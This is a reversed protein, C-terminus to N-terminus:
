KVRAANVSANRLNGVAYVLNGAKELKVPGAMLGHWPDPPPRKKVINTGNTSANTPSAVPRNTPGAAVAAPPAKQTM